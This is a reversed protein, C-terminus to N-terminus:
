TIAKKHSAYKKFYFSLLLMTMYWFFRATKRRQPACFVCTHKGLSKRDKTQLSVNFLFLGSRDLEDRCYYNYSFVNVMMGGM